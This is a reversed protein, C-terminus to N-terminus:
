KAAQNHWSKRINKRNKKCSPEVSWDLLHRHRGEMDNDVSHLGPSKQPKEYVLGAESASDSKWGVYFDRISVGVDTM